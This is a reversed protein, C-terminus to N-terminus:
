AICHKVMVDGDEGNRCMRIIYQMLYAKWVTMDSAEANPDAGFTLLTTLLHHQPLSSRALLFSDPSNGTDLGFIVWCILRTTM